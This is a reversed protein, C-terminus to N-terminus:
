LAGEDVDLTVVGETVGGAVTELEDLGEPELEDLAVPVGEDLAIFV